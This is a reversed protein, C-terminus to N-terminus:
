QQKKRGVIEDIKKGYEARRERLASMADEVSEFKGAAVDDCLTKYMDIGGQFVAALKSPRMPPLDRFNNDVLSGYTFRWEGNVRRLTTPKSGGVNYLRARDGDIEERADTPVELNFEPAVRDGAEAGFRKACAEQFRVKMALSEVIAQLSKEEEPDATYYCRRMLAVDGTKM